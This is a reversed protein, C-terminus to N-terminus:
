DRVSGSPATLVDSVKMGAARAVFMWIGDVASGRAAAMPVVVFLLGTASQGANGLALLSAMSATFFVHPLDSGHSSM